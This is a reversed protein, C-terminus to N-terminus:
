AISDPPNNQLNYLTSRFHNLPILSMIEIPEENISNFIRNVNTGKFAESVIRLFNGSDVVKLFVRYYRGYLQDSVPKCPVTTFRPDKLISM